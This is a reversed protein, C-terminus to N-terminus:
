EGVAEGFTTAIWENEREEDLPVLGHEEAATVLSDYDEFLVGSTLLVANGRDTMRSRMLPLLEIIVNRHINALVVDFDGEDVDALEGHIVVIEPVGNLAINERTNQVAWENNDVAVVREAGKRAAIIALVGTGTGVDLVRRAAFPVRTMLRAILRTSEHHGTGFSMKPDITVVLDDPSAPEVPNWSQTIVLTDTLRVPELSAEFEANWNQEEVRGREFEADVGEPVWSRITNMTEETLKGEEFYLTVSAENDVIGTIELLESVATILDLTSRDAHCTLADYQKM